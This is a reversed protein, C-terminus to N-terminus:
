NLTAITQVTATLPAPAACSGTSVPEFLGTATGSHTAPGGDFSFNTLAISATLGTRVWAFNGTATHGPATFHITGNATGTVANPVSKKKVTVCGENYSFSATLTGGQFNPSGGVQLLISQTSTGTCSGACPYAPLSATGETVSRAPKLVKASSPVAALTALAGAAVAAVKLKYGFDTIGLM